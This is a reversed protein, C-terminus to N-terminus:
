NLHVSVNDQKANVDVGKLLLLEVVDSADRSRYGISAACHLVTKGQLCFHPVNAPM